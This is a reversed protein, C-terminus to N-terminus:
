FNENYWRIFDDDTSLESVPMDYMDFWVWGNRWCETALEVETYNEMGDYERARNARLDIYEELNDWLNGGIKKKAEKATDAFVIQCGADDNNAISLCYAKM